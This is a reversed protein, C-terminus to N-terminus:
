SHNRIKSFQSTISFLLLRIVRYLLRAPWTFVYFVLAIVTVIGIQTLMQIAPAQYAIIAYLNILNALLFCLLFVIFERKKHQRTIITDNKFM